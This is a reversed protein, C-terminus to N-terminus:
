LEGRPPSNREFNDKQHPAHHPSRPPLFPSKVLKILKKLFINAPVLKRSIKQPVPFEFCSYLSLLTQLFLSLQQLFHFVSFFCFCIAFCNSCSPCLLLFCICLLLSCVCLYLFVFFHVVVKLLLKNQNAVNLHSKLPDGQRSLWKITM